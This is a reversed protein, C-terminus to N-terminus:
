FECYSPKAFRQNSTSRESAEQLPFYQSLNDLDILSQNIQDFNTLSYIKLSNAKFYLINNQTAGFIAADASASNSSRQQHAAVSSYPIGFSGSWVDISM